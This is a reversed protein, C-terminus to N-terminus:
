KSFKYNVIVLWEGERIGDWKTENLTGVILYEGGNNTGSFKFNGKETEEGSLEILKLADEPSKGLKTYFRIDEAIENVTKILVAGEFFSSDRGAALYFNLLTLSCVIFVGLVLIVTPIDGKKNRM